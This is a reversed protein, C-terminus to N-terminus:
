QTSESSYGHALTETMKPTKADNQIPWILWYLCLNAYYYAYYYYYYNYYAYYYYAYYYYYYYYAYYYYAYILM